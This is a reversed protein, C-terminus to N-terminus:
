ILSASRTLNVSDIHLKQQFVKTILPIIEARNVTNKHRRVKVYHESVLLDVLQKVTTIERAFERGWKEALLMTILFSAMGVGGWERNFFITILSLLIGGFAVHTIWSKCTLLKVKLGMRQLMLRIQRRRHKKPFLLELRSSATIDEKPVESTEIIAKRLKYFAQQSTCGAKDEYNIHQEFVDCLDGFTKVHLFANKEFQLGFSKWLLLIVEDIEESDIQNLQWSEQNSEM